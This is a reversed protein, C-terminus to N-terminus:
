YVPLISIFFSSQKVMLLPRTVAVM